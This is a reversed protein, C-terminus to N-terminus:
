YGNFHIDYCNKTTLNIKMRMYCPGGDMISFIGYHFAHHPGCSCNLWVEKEGKANIVALCQKYYNKSKLFGQETPCSNMIGNIELLDKEELDYPKCNEGFIRDDKSHYTFIAFDPYKKTNIKPKINVTSYNIILRNYYNNGTFELIDNKIVGKPTGLHKIKERLYITDYKIYYKGNTITLTDPNNPYSEIFQYSSDTYLTIKFNLNNFKMEQVAVLIQKRSIKSYIYYSLMLACLGTGTIVMIRVIKQAKTM